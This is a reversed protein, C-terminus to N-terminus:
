SLADRQGAALLRAAAQIGLLGFQHGLRDVTSLACPATITSGASMGLMTSCSASLFKRFHPMQEPTSPAFPLSAFQETTNLYPMFRSKLAQSLVSPADAGTLVSVSSRAHFM